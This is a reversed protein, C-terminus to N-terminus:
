HLFRSKHSRVAEAKSPREYTSSLSDPVVIPMTSTQVGECLHVTEQILEDVYGLDHDDISLDDCSLISKRRGYSPDVTVKKVIYGGKKYKPFIIDYREEGSSTFAQKRNSNENFHLAALQLRHFFIYLQPFYMYLLLVLKM